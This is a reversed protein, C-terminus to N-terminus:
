EGGEVPDLLAKTLIHAYTFTQGAEVHGSMLITMHYAQVISFAKFTVNNEEKSRCSM